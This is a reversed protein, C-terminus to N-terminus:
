KFFLCYIMRGSYNHKKKINSIEKKLNKQGYNVTLFYLEYGESKAIASVVASDIGGSIAVIAKKMIGGELSFSYQIKKCYEWDIVIFVQAVKVAFIM